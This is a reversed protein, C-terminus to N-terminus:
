ATVGNNISLEPISGCSTKAMLPPTTWDKSMSSLWDSCLSKSDLTQSAHWRMRASAPKSLLYNHLSLSGRTSLGKFIEGIKGGLVAFNPSSGEHPKGFPFDVRRPTGPGPHSHYDAAAIAPPGYLPRIRHLIDKLFNLYRFSRDGTRNAELAYICQHPIAHAGHMRCWRRSCDM